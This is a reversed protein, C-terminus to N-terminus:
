YISECQDWRREWINVMDMEVEEHRVLGDDADDVDGPDSRKTTSPQFKFLAAFVGYNYEILCLDM